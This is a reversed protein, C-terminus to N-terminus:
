KDRQLLSAKVGATIDYLGSTNDNVLPNLWRVPLEAFFSFNELSAPKYELYTLLEQHSDIAREVLPLGPQGYKAYVFEVRDAFESDYAADFRVRVQTALIASDIYGVNSDGAILQAQVPTALTIGAVVCVAPLLYRIILTWHHNAHNM